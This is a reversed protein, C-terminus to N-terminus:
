KDGKELNEEKKNQGENEQSKEFSDLRSGSGEQKETKKGIYKDRVAM